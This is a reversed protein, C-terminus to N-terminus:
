TLLNGRSEALDDSSIDILLRAEGTIAPRGCERAEREVVPHVEAIEYHGRARHVHCVRSIVTHPTHVLFSDDRGDGAEAHGTILRVPHRSPQRVEPVRGSYSHRSGSREDRVESVSADNPEARRLADLM